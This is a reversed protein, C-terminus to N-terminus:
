SGALYASLYDGILREAAQRRELSALTRGSCLSHPMARCAEDKRRLYDTAYHLGSFRVHGGHETNWRDVAIAMQALENDITAAGLAAAVDRQPYSEELVTPVSVHLGSDLTPMRELLGNPPAAAAVFRLGHLIAHRSPVYIRSYLDAPATLAGLKGVYFIERAGLDCCRAALHGGISGWYSYHVGLLAVRRGPFDYVSAAYYPTAARSTVTRHQQHFLEHLLEV